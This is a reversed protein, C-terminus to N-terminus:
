VSENTNSFLMIMTSYFDNVEENSLEAFDSSFGNQGINSTILRLFLEKNSKWSSNNAFITIAKDLNNITNFWTKGSYSQNLDFKVSRIVASKDVNLAYIEKSAADLMFEASEDIAISDPMYVSSNVDNMYIYNINKLYYVGGLVIGVILLLYYMGFWRKPNTLVDKFDIEDEFKNEM